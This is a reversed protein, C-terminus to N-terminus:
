LYTSGSNGGVISTKYVRKISGSDNVDSFVITDPTSRLPKACFEQTGKTNSVKLTTFRGVTQKVFKDINM